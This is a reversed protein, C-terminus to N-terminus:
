IKKLIVRSDEFGQMTLETRLEKWIFVQSEIRWKKKPDFNILDAYDLTFDGKFEKLSSNVIAMYPAWILAVSQSPVLNISYADPYDWGSITQIGNNQLFRLKFDKYNDAYTPSFQNVEPVAVTGGGNGRSNSHLPSADINISGIPAGNANTYTNATLGNVVDESKSDSSDASWTLTYNQKEKITVSLKGNLRTTYDEEATTVLDAKPSIDLENKRVDYNFNLCFWEKIATFLEGITVSPLHKKLDITNYTYTTVAFNVEIEVGSTSEGGALWEYIGYVVDGLAGTFEGVVLNMNASSALITANLAASLSIAGTAIDALIVTHTVTHIYPSAGANIPFRFTIVTGVPVNFPAASGTNPDLLNITFMATNVNSSNPGITTGASYIDLSNGGTVINVPNYIILQKGIALGKFSGKIRSINLRKAVVEIVYQLYAMPVPVTFDEFSTTGGNYYNFYYYPDSKIFAYRAIYDPFTNSIEPLAFLADPYGVQITSNLDSLSPAGAFPAAYDLEDILLDLNKTEVQFTCAVTYNSQNADLIILKGTFYDNGFTKVTALISRTAGGIQCDEIWGLEKRNIPTNPITFPLSIETEFELDDRWFPNQKVWTIRTDPALELYNNNETLIQIMTYSVCLM